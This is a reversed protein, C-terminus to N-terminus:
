LGEAGRWRDLHGGGHVVGAHSVFPRVGVRFDIGRQGALEDFVDGVFISISVPLLCGDLHVVSRLRHLVSLSDSHAVYLVCHCLKFPTVFLAVLVEWANKFSVGGCQPFLDEFLELVAVFGLLVREPAVGDGPKILLKSSVIAFLPIGDEVVEFVLPLLQHGLCRLLM